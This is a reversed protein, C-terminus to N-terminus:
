HCFWPATTLEVKWGALTQSESRRLRYAAMMKLLKGSDVKMDQEPYNWSRGMSVVENGNRPRPGRVKIRALNKIRGVDAGCGGGADCHKDNRM